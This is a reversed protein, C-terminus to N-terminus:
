DCPFIHVHYRRNEYGLYEAKVLQLYEDCILVSFVPRTVADLKLINALKQKDADTYIAVHHSTIWVYHKVADLGNFM